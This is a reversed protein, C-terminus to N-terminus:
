PAVLDVAGIRRNLPFVIEHNTPCDDEIDFTLGRYFLPGRQAALTSVPNNPDSVDTATTAGELVEFYGGVTWEMQLGRSVDAWLGFDAEIRVLGDGDVDANAPILIQATPLTGAECAAGAAAGA